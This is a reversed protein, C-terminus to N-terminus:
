FSSRLEEILPRIKYLKDYNDSGKRPLILNDNLHVHALLWSFRSINMLGSIYNDRLEDHSSWFDRYSPVTKVGM